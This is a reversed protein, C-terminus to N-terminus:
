ATSATAAMYRRGTRAAVGFHDGVTKGTVPLGRAKLTAMAARVADTDPVDHGDGSRQGPGSPVPTAVPALGPLMDASHGSSELSPTVAAPPATPEGAETGVAVRHGDAGDAPAAITAPRTTKEVGTGAPGATKAEPAAPHSDAVTAPTDPRVALHAAPPTAVSSAEATGTYGIGAPTTAPRPPSPMHMMHGVVLPPAASVAAVLWASGQVYGADLLHATMQFALALALAGAAGTLASRRGPTSKPLKAALYASGAAYVSVVLPMLWAAAPSWGATRALDYEGPASMALAAILVLWMYWPLRTGDDAHACGRCLCAGDSQPALLVTKRCSRCAGPEIASM